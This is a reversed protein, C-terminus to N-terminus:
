KKRRKYNTEVLTKGIYALFSLSFAGNLDLQVTEKGTIVKNIKELSM